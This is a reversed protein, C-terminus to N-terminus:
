SVRHLVKQNTLNSRELHRQAFILPPMKLKTHIRQHNYSYITQYIALVLEGITDFRNPDGLDVKFQSYFSEQYGNEWPSAKASMSVTIGLNKIIALYDQGTYESGQDSHIIRPPPHRNLASLLANIVLQASHNLLVAFGVIERTFLEMVTALYLFRGHFPILTFDSVWIKNTPSPLETLLLNPCIVTNKKTKRRKRGRRRYPKIGFIKMVRLVRKKNIKLELAIRKHGYSPHARLVKLIRQKLYWDKAPMKHQYYLMSRSISVQKAFVVRSTLNDPNM